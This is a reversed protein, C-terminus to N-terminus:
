PHPWPAPPLLPEGAAPGGRVLEQGVWVLGEQTCLDLRPSCPCYQPLVGQSLLAALVPVTTGVGDWCEPMTLFWTSSSARAPHALCPARTHPVTACCRLLARRQSLGKGRKIASGWGQALGERERGGRRSVCGRCTQGGNRALVAISGASLWQSGHSNNM